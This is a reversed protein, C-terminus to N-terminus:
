VPWIKKRMFYTADKCLFTAHRWSIPVKLLFDSKVVPSTLAQQKEIMVDKYLDKHGELYEWEEMSFYVTVDECRLPVEGTLLETIKSTLELIKQKNNREHILLLSSPDTFQTKSRGGLMIPSSKPTVHEGSKKKVIAYDEGTLIFIIELTLNLIRNTLHSQYKDIRQGDM